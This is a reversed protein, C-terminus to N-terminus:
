CRHSGYGCFKTAGGTSCYTTVLHSSLFNAHTGLDAAILEVLPDGHRGTPRAPLTVRRWGKAHVDGQSRSSRADSYAICKQLRGQLLVGGARRLLRSLPTIPSQPCDYRRYDAHNRDTARTPLCPGQICRCHPAEIPGEPFFASRTQPTWDRSMKSPLLRARTDIRGDVYGTLDRYEIKFEWGCSQPESGPERRTPRRMAEEM